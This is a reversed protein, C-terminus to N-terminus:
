EAYYRRVRIKGRVLVTAVLVGAGLKVMLWFPLNNVFVGMLPGIDYDNIVLVYNLRQTTADNSEAQVTGTVVLGAAATANDVATSNRIGGATVFATQQYVDVWGETVTYATGYPVDAFTIVDGHRLHLPPTIGATSVVRDVTVPITYTRTTRTRPQVFSLGDSDRVYGEVTVTIATPMHHAPLEPLDLVIGFEFFRHASGLNGTVNKEVEFDGIGPPPTINNAFEIYEKGAASGPVGPSGPTEPNAPWAFIQPVPPTADSGLVILQQFTEDRWGVYVHVYFASSDYNMDIIGSTNANETVRFIFRGPHPWAVSGFDLYATGELLRNNSVSPTMTSISLSAPLTITPLEEAPTPQFTEAVLNASFTFNGTTPIAVRQPVLLTKQIPFYVDPLNPLVFTGFNIDYNNLAHTGPVSVTAWDIGSPAGGNGGAADAAAIPTASLRNGEGHDDSFRATNGSFQVTNSTTLNGYNAIFIGGGNGDAINGSFGGERVTVNGSANMGGGNGGARNSDINGALRVTTGAPAYVGGGRQQAQNNLLSSGPLMTFSAGSQLSVAGGNGNVSNRIVAGDKMYLRGGSNVHVGGSSHSPVAGAPNFNAGGSLVINDLILIAGDHVNFHRGGGSSTQTIVFPNGVRGQAALADPCSMVIVTNTLMMGLHHQTNDRHSLINTTATYNAFTSTDMDSTVMIQLIEAPQYGFERAYLGPILLTANTQSWVRPWGDGPLSTNRGRGADGWGAGGTPIRSIIHSNLNNISDVGIIDDHEASQVSPVHGGWRDVRRFSLAGRDTASVFFCLGTYPAATPISYGMGPRWHHVSHRPHWADGANSNNAAVPLSGLLMTLALALALTITTISKIKKTKIKKM